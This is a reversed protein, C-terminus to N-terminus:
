GESKDVITIVNRIKQLYINGAVLAGTKLDNPRTRLTHEYYHLVTELENTLGRKTIAKIADHTSNNLIQQAEHNLVAQERKTCPPKKKFISFM